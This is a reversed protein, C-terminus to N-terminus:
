KSGATYIQQTQSCLRETPRETNREGIPKNLFQATIWQGRISHGSEQANKLKTIHLPIYKMKNFKVIANITQQIFIWNNSHIHATTEKWWGLTVRLFSITAWSTLFNGVKHLVQLNLVKNVFDWYQNRDMTLDTWDM